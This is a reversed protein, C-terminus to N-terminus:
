NLTCYATFVNAGQGNTFPYRAAGCRGRERRLREENEVMDQACLYPCTCDREFFVQQEEPYIVYLIVEVVADRTCGEVSCECKEEM